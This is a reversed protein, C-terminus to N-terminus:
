KVKFEEKVKKWLIENIEKFSKNKLMSMAAGCVIGNYNKTLYAYQWRSEISTLGAECAAVVTQRYIEHMRANIKQAYDRLDTLEEPISAYYEHDIEGQEPNFHDRIEKVTICSLQHFLELYEDGKLKVKFGNDFTVVFGEYNGSLNKAFEACEEFSNFEYIQTFRLGLKEAESRMQELTYENHDKDFVGLLVLGEYDYKVVHPDANYVIEFCYTCSKDMKSLDVNENLWHQAWFAQSSIFSGGTKVIWRGDHYFVIGLSGDVKEMVRFKSTMKPKFNQTTMLIKGIEALGQQCFVEQYNFFKDFPHAVIKGTNNDFVIGRCQMTVDDWHKEFTTSLSYKFGVLSGDVSRHMTLWGEKVYELCTKLDLM